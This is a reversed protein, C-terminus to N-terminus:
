RGPRVSQCDYSCHLWDFVRQGHRDRRGAAARGGVQGSTRRVLFASNNVYLGYSFRAVLKSAPRSRGACETITTCLSGGKGHWGLINANSGM